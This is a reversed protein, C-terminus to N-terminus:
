FAICEATYVLATKDISRKIQYNLFPCACAEGTFPNGIKSGDSYFAIADSETIYECIKKNVETENRLKYALEIDIDIPFM